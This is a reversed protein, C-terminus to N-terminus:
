RLLRDEIWAWGDGINVHYVVKSALRDLDRSMATLSCREFATGRRSKQMRVEAQQLSFELLANRLQWHFAFSEDDISVFESFRGIHATVAFHWKYLHLRDTTDNVEAEMRVTIHERDKDIDFIPSVVHQTLDRLGSNSLTGGYFPKFDLSDISVLSLLSPSFDPMKVYPAEEKTTLCESFM